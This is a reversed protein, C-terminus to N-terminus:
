EYDSMNLISALEKLIDKNTNKNQYFIVRYNKQNETLQINNRDFIHGRLPPIIFTKIRNDESMNKYKEYNVIQLFFLRIVLILFLFIQISFIIILRRNAVSAKEHEEHIGSM